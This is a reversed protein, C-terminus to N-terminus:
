DPPQQNQQKISLVFFHIATYIHKREKRHVRKKFNHEHLENLAIHKHDFLPIKVKMHEIKYLKEKTLCSVVSKKGLYLLIYKFCFQM